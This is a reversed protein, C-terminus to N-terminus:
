IKKPHLSEWADKLMKENDCYWKRIDNMMTSSCKGNSSAYLKGDSLRFVASEKKSIVHFHPPHYEFERARVQILYKRDEDHMNKIKPEYKWWDLSVINDLVCEYNTTGVRYELKLEKNDYEPHEFSVIRGESEIAKTFCNSKEFCVSYLADFDASVFEVKTSNGNWYPESCINKQIWLKLSAVEANRFTRLNSIDAISMCKCVPLSWFTDKKVIINDKEEGIRKLAPITKNRLSEAFADVSAFQGRLSYENLYYEM